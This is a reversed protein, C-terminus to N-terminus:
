EGSHPQRGPTAAPVASARYGEPGWGARAPADTPISQAANSVAPTAPAAAPDSLGDAFGADGTVQAMTAMDQQVTPLLTQLSSRDGTDIYRSLAVNYSAITRDDTADVLQGLRQLPARFSPVREVFNNMTREWAQRAPTGTNIIAQATRTVEGVDQGADQIMVLAARVKAQDRKSLSM